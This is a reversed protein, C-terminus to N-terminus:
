PLRVLTGPREGGDGPGAAPLHRALTAGGLTGVPELRGPADALERVGGPGAHLLASRGAGDGVGLLLADGTTRTRAGDGARVAVPSGVLAPWRGLDRRRTGALLHLSLGHGDLRDVALGFAQGGAVAWAVAGGAPRPLVLRRDAGQRLDAYSELGVATALLWRGASGVLQRVWPVAGPGAHQDAVRTVEGTPGLLCLSQHAPRQPADPRGIVVACSRGDGFPEPVSSGPVAPDLRQRGPDVYRYAAPGLPLVPGPGGGALPLVQVALSGVEATAPGEALRTDPSRLVVWGVSGSVALFPRYPTPLPVSAGISLDPGLVHCHLEGNRRECAVIGVASVAWGVLRGLRLERDARGTWPDIRALRHGSADGGPASWSYLLGGATRADLVAEDLVVMAPVPPTSPGASGPRTEPVAASAPGRGPGPPVPAPRPPPVPGPLSSPGPGPLPAPVPRPVAPRAADGARAAGVPGDLATRAAGLAAAAKPDDSARVLDGWRERLLRQVLPTRTAGGSLLVARPEAGSADVTEALLRVSRRVDDGILADLEARSLEVDVDAGPVYQSATEFDSLAEKTRRAEDQLDAAAALWGRDPNTTLEAWWAPARHALQDGLHRFVLQDFVEGGLDPDGGPRGQVAFGGPGPVVVATDFTTAGLDYVAVPGSREGAHVAVAVPEPVLLVEVGPLVREAVARLAAVRDPPWGAPHTLALRDPDRDDHRRRGEAVFLAVLAALADAAAVPQGGLLMPARGVYRRPNSEARDPLRGAARQAYSGALLRGDETLVVTCPVRPEGGVELVETGADTAAAGAAWGTGLDLGLVWRGARGSM